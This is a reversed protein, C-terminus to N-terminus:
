VVFCALQLAANGNANIKERIALLQQMHRVTTPQPQSSLSRRLIALAADVLQLTRPRDQKYTHILLLKEYPSAQLLARADNIVQANEAFITDDSALRSIEAPLGKALFELQATKTSDTIGLSIIHERTQEASIPLIATQQVRSRITALLLQPQHSTLIFHINSGPEELLKLFAASAGKSMRDADDIIVIQRRKSRSRTQEYLNRIMEVSITGSASPQGKTDRPSLQDTLESAALWKAVAGLGVGLTGYVLISQPLDSKLAELARASEPHLLLSV